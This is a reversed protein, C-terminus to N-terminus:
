QLTCLRDKGCKAGPPNRGDMTAVPCHISVVAPIANLFAVRQQCFALRCMVGRGGQICQLGGVSPVLVVLEDGRSSNTVGGDERIAVGHQEHIKTCVSCPLEGLCQSFRIEAAKVSALLGSQSEDRSGLVCPRQRTRHSKWGARQFVAEALHKGIFAESLQPDGLGLLIRM